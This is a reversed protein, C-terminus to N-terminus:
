GIRRIIGARMMARYVAVDSESIIEEDIPYHDSAVALLSLLAAVPGIPEYGNEWELITGGGSEPPLGCLKAFDRVTLPRGIAEGLDKRLQQIGNLIGGRERIPIAYELALTRGTSTNRRTERRRRVPPRAVASVSDQPGTSRIALRNEKRLACRYRPLM